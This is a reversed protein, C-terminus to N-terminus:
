VGWMKFLLDEFDLTYRATDFAPASSGSSRLHERVARLREPSRALELALARYADLDPCILYDRGCASLLSAAVRGAFYPGQCTVVPVGAWLAEAATTHANYPVTDLYLDALRLRSLHADISELNEAFLLRKPDVDLDRAAIQL